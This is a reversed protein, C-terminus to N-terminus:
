SIMLNLIDLRIGSKPIEIRFNQFYENNRRGTNLTGYELGLGEELWKQEKPTISVQYKGTESRLVSFRDISGDLKGDYLLHNKNTVGTVRRPIYEYRVPIAETKTEVEM